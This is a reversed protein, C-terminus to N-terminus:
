AGEPSYKRRPGSEEPSRGSNLSIAGEPSHEGGSRLNVPSRWANPFRAGEPSIKRRM